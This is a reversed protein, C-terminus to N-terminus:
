VLVPFFFLAYGTEITFNGITGSWIKGGVDEKAELARYNHVHGVTELTYAAGLGAAGLGGIVYESRPVADPACANCAAPCVEYAFRTSHNNHNTITNSPDLETTCLGYQQIDRCTYNHTDAVVRLTTSRHNTCTCQEYRCVIGCHEQVHRGDRDIQQCRQALQQPTTSTAVWALCTRTPDQNFQFTLDDRCPNPPPPPPPARAQSQSQSQSSAPSQSFSRLNKRTTTATNTPNAVFATNAATTTTTTSSSQVSLLAPANEDKNSGDLLPTQWLLRTLLCGAMVVGIVIWSSRKSSWAVVKTENNRSSSASPLVASITGNSRSNSSSNSNSNSNSSRNKRHVTNTTRQHVISSNMRKNERLSSPTSPVFFDNCYLM